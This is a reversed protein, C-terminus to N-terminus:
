AAQSQKLEFLREYEAPSKYDLRSHRRERNYFVEIYEHIASAADERTPWSRRYILERKLTAFFSEAVANDYCEGRGSMSCEIGHDRLMDRYDGSTYQSGRDSHALLSGQAGRQGLAMALADLALEARVHSKMSWGVVRRSFLDLVVAIYLWGEWTKVQTIDMAWVRNPADVDFARALVNPEFPGVSPALAPHKWRKAPVGSIGAKRMLRAVRKKSTRFGLVRLDRLVSPSGYTGRTRKHVLVIHTSLEADRLAHRSLGRRRWAYYGSKSVDLMRCMMPVGYTANEARIFAFKV